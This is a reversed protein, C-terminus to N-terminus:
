YTNANPDLYSPAKETVLCLVNINFCVEIIQYITINVWLWAKNALNNEFIFNGVIVKIHINSGNHVRPESRLDSGHQSQKPCENWVAIWALGKCVAFLFSQYACWNIAFFQVILDLFDNFSQFVFM